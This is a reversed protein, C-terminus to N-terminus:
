ELMLIGLQFLRQLAQHLRHRAPVGLRRQAPRGLARAFQGLLQRSRPVRDARLFDTSQELFHTVAQLAVLLSQLAFRMGIAIRLELEDVGARFLELSSALRHDRHIRLLLLQDAIELIAASFPARLTLWLLNAGVVEDIWLQALGDRIADVIHRPVLAPDIDADVM